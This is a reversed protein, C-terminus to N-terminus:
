IESFISVYVAYTHPLDSELGFIKLSSLIEDTYDGVTDAQDM